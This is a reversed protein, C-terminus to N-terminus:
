TQKSEGSVLSSPIHGERLRRIRSNPLAVLLAFLAVVSGSIAMAVPAGLFSAMAGIQLTGLPHVMTYQMGWFGMVRGRYVDPVMQHLISQSAVGFVQNWLSGMLLVMLMLGYISTPTLAFIVLAGGYLVGSLIMVPGQRRAIAGMGGVFSGLFGGLGGAAFLLGLISGSSDADIEVAFIPLLATYALGFLAHVFAMLILFSFIHNALIYRFGDALEKLGGGRSREVRPAHIRLFLYTGVLYVCGVLVLSLAAGAHGVGVRDILVGAIIPIFIRVGPDVATNVAVASTLDRRDILHPFLAQRPPGEFAGVAGALFTIGLIHWVQLAGVLTLAALAAYVGASGAMTVVLLRRQDVKDALVGGYLGLVFAPVARAFGLLGLQLASGTLDYLLWAMVVMGAQRGSTSMISGVWFLRFDRHTLAAAVRFRKMLAM